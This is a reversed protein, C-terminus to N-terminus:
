PIAVNIAKIPTVKMWTTKPSNIGLVKANRAGSFAEIATEEVISKNLEM